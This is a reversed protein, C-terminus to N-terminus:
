VSHLTSPTLFSYVCLARVNQEFAVSRDEAIRLSGSNKTGYVGFIVFLLLLSFYPVISKGEM